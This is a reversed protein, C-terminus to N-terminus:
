SAEGMEQLLRLIDRRHLNDHLSIIRLVQGVSIEGLAPHLGSIALKEADLSDLSVLTARYAAELDALVRDVPWDAREAVRAANWDDLDFGPLDVTQGALLRRVVELHSWQSAGVHALTLRVSWRGDDPRWDWAAADLGDIAALLRTRAVTIKEKIKKIEDRQM